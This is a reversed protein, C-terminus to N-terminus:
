TSCWCGSICTWRARRSASGRAAYMTELMDDALRRVADDVVAIPSAKTRLRPDPYELIALKTM